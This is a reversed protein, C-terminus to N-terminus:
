ECRVTQEAQYLGASFVGQTKTATLGLDLDRDGYLVVLSLLDLFSSGGATSVTPTFAVNADGNLPASSFQTPPVITVRFCNVQLVTSCTLPSVGVKLVTSVRVRAARGGPNETSLTRLNPSPALTGTSSVILTCTGVSVDVLAKAQGAMGLFATIIALFRGLNRVICVREANRTM